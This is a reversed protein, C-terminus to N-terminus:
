RSATQKIQSVHESERRKALSPYFWTNVGPVYYLAWAGLIDILLHAAFAVFALPFGPTCRYLAVLIEHWPLVDDELLHVCLIALTAQGARSLVIALWNIRDLTRCLGVICLTGCVAGFVALIPTAGYDNLAMSFGSFKWIAIGWVAVLVIFVWPFRWLKGLVDYQRALYGVYVYAVACLASQISWPLWIFRSSLWGIVFSVVVWVPTLPLKAFWHMLMRAWFMALLFWIAGIRGQVQWLTLGPGTVDGAGYVAANFWFWMRELADEHEVVASLGTGLIVLIATCLYTLVLQRCEKGWQFPREAHIFYGSILFFLPMHFSFCFAISMHAIDSEAVGLSEIAAHGLVVCLIGLGKSMDFFRIRKM